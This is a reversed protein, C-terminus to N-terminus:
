DKTKKGECRAPVILYEISHWLCLMIIASSYAKCAWSHKSQKDTFAMKQM